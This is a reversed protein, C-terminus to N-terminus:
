EYKLEGSDVLNDIIEKVADKLIERDRMLTKERAKNDKTEMRNLKEDTANFVFQSISQTGILQDKIRKHFNDDFAISSTHKNM